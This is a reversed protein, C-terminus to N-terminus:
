FTLVHNEMMIEGEAVGEVMELHIHLNKNGFLLIKYNFARSKLLSQIDRYKVKQFDRYRAFRINIIVDGDTRYNTTLRPELKHQVFTSLLLGAGISKGSAIVRMGQEKRSTYGKEEKSAWDPADTVKLKLRLHIKQDTIQISM